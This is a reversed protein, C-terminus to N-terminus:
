EPVTPRSLGAVQLLERERLPGLSSVEGEDPRRGGEGKPGLPDQEATVIM